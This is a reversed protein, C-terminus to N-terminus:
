MQNSIQIIKDSKPSIKIEDIVFFGSFRCIGVAAAAATTSLRLMGIECHSGM